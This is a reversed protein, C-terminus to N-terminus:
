LVATKRLLLADALTLACMAKVVPVARVVVCPDHRASKPQTILAKQNKTTLTQIPRGISSPPKFAVRIKLPMGNSIGGLIGGAHNTATKVKGMEHIFPDNHESGKMSAAEFGSGIEFAKCAPISLMANALNAELKQFIPDGLGVPLPTSILEIAGGLSDREEKIQTLEEIMAFEARQDPCFLASKQLGAEIEEFPTEKVNAFVSGIQIIYASLRIGFHLLLKEAIAGAAVRVATERASARSGGRYDHHGYKERYTYDAHGPRLLEKLKEYSSSNVDRNYIILSIPTGLTKNQFVGSLIEVTDPEKRPTTFPSNGPKRKDLKAQIEQETIELNAPCGDIVAGIARGHSEGWTMVKFLEGFQNSGM